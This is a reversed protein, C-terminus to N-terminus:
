LPRILNKMRHNAMIYNDSWDGLLEKSNDFKLRLERAFIPNFVIQIDSENRFDYKLFDEFPSMGANFIYCINHLYHMEKQVRKDYRIGIIGLQYLINMKNNINNLDYAYSADFKMSNVINRFENVDMQENCWLFGNLVEDLNRFVYKYEDIFEERIIKKANDKIALKVEEVSLKANPDKVLENDSNVYVVQSLLSSLNSIVDRPRWFSSRLLYKFLPMSVVNGDINMPITKPIGPFFSLAADMRQFYNENSEVIGKNSITTILYEMRQTLMKLLEYASWSMAGFVKKSSDRDSDIIQDCRDKPLVICFHMYRGIVSSVNDNYKNFRFATAVEILTRFFMMEYESRRRREQPDNNISNTVIRFDDSHTDFGDLAIIIKKKCLKIADLFKRTDSIGFADEIIDNANFRSSYSTVILEGEKGKALASNYRNDILEVAAMFIDKPVSDSFISGYTRRNKKLGILAKLKKTYKNFTEFRKDTPEIDFQEIAASITVICHLFFYIQWFLCLADHTTIITRENAHKSILTEYIEEHQFAEASIPIMQKYNEVFYDEDMKRFNNIFTSKGSGKRGAVFLCEQNLIKTYLEHKVLCSDPLNTTDTLWFLKDMAIRTTEYIESKTKLNYIATHIIRGLFLNFETRTTNPCSCQGKKNCSISFDKFTRANRNQFLNILSNEKNDEFIVPFVSSPNNEYREEIIEYEKLVERGKNKIAYKDDIIQKFDPTCFVVVLDYRRIRERLEDFDANDKYDHRDLIVEVQDQSVRIIESRLYELKKFREETEWAYCFFISPLNM